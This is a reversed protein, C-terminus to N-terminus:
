ILRGAIQRHIPDSYDITRERDHAENDNARRTSEFSAVGVCSPYALPAPLERDTFEELLLVFTTEPRVKKIKRPMHWAIKGRDGNGLTVVDGPYRDALTIACGFLPAGAVWSKGVGDCVSCIPWLSAHTPALVGIGRCTPCTLFVSTMRRAEMAAM